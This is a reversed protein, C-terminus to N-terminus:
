GAPRPRGRVVLEDRRRLRRHVGEVQRARTAPARSTMPASTDHTPRRPWSVVRPRASRRRGHWAVPVGPRVVADGVRLRPPAPRDEVPQREGAVLPHEVGAAARAPDGLQEGRPQRAPVDDREVREGDIISAARRAAPATRRDPRTRRRPGPAAAAARRAPRRSGTSPSTGSPRGIVVRQERVEGRDSRGPPRSTAWHPPTPLMAEIRRTSASSRRRSARARGVVRRREAVARRSSAAPSRRCRTSASRRASATRAPRATRSTGASPSGRRGGAAAAPPPARRTRGRGHDLAQGLRQDVVDPEVDDRPARAARRPPQGGLRPGPVPRRPGPDRRRGVALVRERGRRSRPRTGASRISTPRGTARAM